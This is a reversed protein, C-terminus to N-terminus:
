KAVMNTMMRVIMQSYEGANDLIYGAALAATNFLINVRERAEPSSPDQHYMNRLNIIIPHSPNLELVAQNFVDSFQGAQDKEAVSQAKLYKQMNPSVGYESQVIMAPSDILRTSAEVRTIKNGLIDKIWLRLEELDENQTKKEKKENDTLEEKFEKGVDMIPKEGYNEINSLTMEDLPDSVYLVEYGKEKVAELAPSMAAQARTEGVIYFIFKQDSPMRKVYDTLSTLSDISHSSYFRCLPVLDNRFKDDEIVGVRIYKGFNKWFQKYETENRMAVDAIMDISKKILRQRIIRLSRSQQLVERGVNLPLDESDVVGRLFLLWRPILDEFKDNIFVRKVYLRMSRAANSFMDRTLEYPLESPLYLLAKFDVNGEVAFHSHALPKDFAKFTQKYFEEYETDNCTKSSRLWLPKKNNVVIWEYVRKMVTKM